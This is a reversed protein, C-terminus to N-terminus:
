TGKATQRDPLQNFWTRLAEKLDSRTRCLIATVQWVRDNAAEVV